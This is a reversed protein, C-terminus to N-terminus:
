MVDDLLQKCRRRRRGTVEIWGEIEGEIVHKVLCNRLLIHSVWSAKRRTVTHMINRIEKVRQLV